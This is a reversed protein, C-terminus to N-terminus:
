GVALRAGVDDRIRGVDERGAERRQIGDQTRTAQGAPHAEREPAVERTAPRRESEPEDRLGLRAAGDDGPQIEGVGEVRHLGHGAADLRLPEHDEGRGPRFFPEGDRAREQGAPGDIEEDHVQRGTRLARGPERIAQTAQRGEGPPRPDAEEDQLRRAEDRGHGSRDPLPRTNAELEGPPGPDAESPVHDALRGLDHDGAIAGARGALPGGEPDEIGVAALPVGAETPLREEDGVTGTRDLGAGGDM